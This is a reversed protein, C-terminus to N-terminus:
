RGMGLQGVLCIWLPTRLRICLGSGALAVVRPSGGMTVKGYHTTEDKIVRGVWALAGQRFIAVTDGYGAFAKHQESLQRGVEDWVDRNLGDAVIALGVAECFENGADLAYPEAQLDGRAESLM